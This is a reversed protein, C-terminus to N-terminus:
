MGADIQRLGKIKKVRLRPDVVTGLASTGIMHSGATSLYKIYCYWYEDSPYKADCEDLPPRVFDMSIKRLAASRSFRMFKKIGRVITAKDAPHTLYNSHISPKDCECCDSITIQGRSKPQLLAVDVISIAHKRNADILIPNLQPFDTFLNFSEIQNAPTAPPFQTFFYQLDPENSSSSSSNTSIAYAGLYPVIAFPGQKVTVYQFISNLTDSEPSSAVPPTLTAPLNYKFILVLFIHDIYNKGVPLNARSTINCKKLEDRPGIGSRMLLPPSQISGASIIAEKKVNAQYKRNNKGYTFEVGTVENNGDIQIRNAYAYKIIHLNPRNKAPILYAQATSSRVGNYSTKQLITYGLSWNANVDPIFEAGAAEFTDALFQSYPPLPSQHIKVPGNATHYDGNALEIYEPDMNGEFKKFFPLVGNWDWGPNGLAAWANFDIPRGRVYNMFNSSSCGGLMKARSIFCGRNGALRCADLSQSYHMWDVTPQQYLSLFLGPM